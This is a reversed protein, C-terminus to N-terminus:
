VTRGLAFNVEYKTIRHTVTAKNNVYPMRFGVSRRIYDDVSMDTAM